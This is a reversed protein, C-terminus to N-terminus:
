RTENKIAAYLFIIAPFKNEVCAYQMTKEALAGSYYIFRAANNLQM